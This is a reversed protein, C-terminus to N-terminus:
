TYSTPPTRSLPILRAFDVRADAATTSAPACPALDAGNGGPIVAVKGVSCSFAAAGITALVMPRTASM